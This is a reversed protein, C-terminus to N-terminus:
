EPECGRSNVSGLRDGVEHSQSRSTPIEADPRLRGGERSSVTPLDGLVLSGDTPTVTMERADAMASTSACILLGFVGWFLRRSM